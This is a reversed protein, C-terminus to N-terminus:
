LPRGVFVIGYSDFLLLYRTMLGLHTEVGLSVSQGVTLRLTVKVKVQTRTCYCNLTTGSSAHFFHGIQNCGELTEPTFQSYHKQSSSSLLSSEDTLFPLV